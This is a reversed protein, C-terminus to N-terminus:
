APPPPVACSPAVAWSGGSRLLGLALLRRLNLAAVRHHLWLDNRQTGLFRLRRNGGAVLWSISREVMPRRQRYVAQFQPDTARARHARQLADHPHLRLTRGKASTTCRARLPCGRCRAGFIATRTGTIPRTVQNPCSVTAAAEDVTFDDITFGGDVAPRLPWPKILATHGAQQLIDLLEGTGYASDGLVELPEPEDALLEIGVAADSHAPGAAPTLACGTILGTDPEVKVHAKYGDQRRRRTKHAHRTEPDVTSIM